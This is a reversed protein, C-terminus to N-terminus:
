SIRHLDTSNNSCMAHGVWILTRLGSDVLSQLQKLGSRADQEPNLLSQFHLCPSSIVDGTTNFMAEVPDSSLM